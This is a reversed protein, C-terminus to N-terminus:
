LSLLSLSPLSSPRQLLQISLLICFSSVQYKTIKKNYYPALATVYDRTFTMQIQKLPPRFVSKKRENNSLEFTFLHQLAVPTAIFATRRIRKRLCSFYQDISAHTHGVILFGMTVVAFYDLEVLLSNFILMEKNKNEGCNDWQVHIERPLMFDHEKLLLALEAIVRRQVEIVFNAGGRVM